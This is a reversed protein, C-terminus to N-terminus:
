PAEEERADLHHDTEHPAVPRALSEEETSPTRVSKRRRSTRRHPQRTSLARPFRAGVVLFGRVDFSTIDRMHGGKTPSGIARDALTV